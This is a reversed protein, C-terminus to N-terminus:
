SIGRDHRDVSSSVSGGAPKVLGKELLYAEVEEGGVDVLMEGNIEVCPARTQGTKSVMETYAEPDQIVDKAEYKLGYKELVDQVGGSWGCLPKLYLVIKLEATM